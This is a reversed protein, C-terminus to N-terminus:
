FKGGIDLCLVPDLTQTFSVGILGLNRMCSRFQMAYKLKSGLSLAHPMGLYLKNPDSKLLQLLIMETYNGYIRVIVSRTSGFWGTGFM